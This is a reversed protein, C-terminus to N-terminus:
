VAKLTSKEKTPATEITRSNDSPNNVVATIALGSLLSDLEASTILLDHAIAGRTKGEARLAKFVKAFVQSTERAIGDKEARRSGEKSLEICFTRYQWETIIQLAKLRHVLAIASVTWRKKLKHITEVEMQGRPIHAFIDKAPMLFASAFRDAELEAQRSRPIGHGHLTLHGLEHAADMRGREGSKKPNLFIFPTKKHWASFADVSASDIPLSFVRVGHVELLHVVNKIPREGLGWEVRLVQAATEPDFNRLSPVTPTPLEFKEDIWKGLAAALTGAALSADRQSATMTSLSRFSAADCAIEEIDTGYFFPAPFQLVEALTAVAEDSPIVNGSEYYVISRLGIHAAEALAIKSLGRRKRALILRSPNFKM